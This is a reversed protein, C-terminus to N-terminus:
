QQEEQCNINELEKIQKKAQDKIQVEIKMKEIENLAWHHNM